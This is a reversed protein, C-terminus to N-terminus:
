VCFLSVLRGFAFIPSRVVVLILVGFTGFVCIRLYFLFWVGLLLCSVDKVYILNLWIMRLGVGIGDWLICV